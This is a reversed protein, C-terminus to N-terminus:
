PSPRRGCRKYTFYDSLIRAHDFAIEGPLNGEHFVGAEAADDAAIPLGSAEGIYVVSITHGRADRRPDSYVHFLERLEVRLGTEESAERRAADPATEGRDIFGGPIAWGPPPNRRRILVIGGGPLEIIIDVTPLPHGGPQM